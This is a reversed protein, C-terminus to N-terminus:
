VSGLPYAPAPAEGVRSASSAALAARQAQIEAKRRLDALCEQEQRAIMAQWKEEASLSATDGQPRQSEAHHEAWKKVGVRAAEVSVTGTPRKQRCDAKIWALAADDLPVGREQYYAIAEFLPDLDRPRILGLLEDWFGRNENFWQQAKLFRGGPLDEVPAPTPAPSKARYAPPAHDVLSAANSDATRQYTVKERAPQPAPHTSVGPKAEGEPNGQTEEQNQPTVAYCVGRNRRSVGTHQGTVPPTNGRSMGEPHTVAHYGEGKQRKQQQETARLELGDWDVRAPDTQLEWETGNNLRKDSESVLRMVRFHTLVALCKRVTGANLGTGLDYRKGDKAVTGDTFQSLSIRDQRKQFGFIRRSAYSLVKWEEPTLLAMLRDVYLNPTQYSNPLLGEREGECLRMAGFDVAM